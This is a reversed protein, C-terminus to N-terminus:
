CVACCLCVGACAWVCAGMRVDVCLAAGVRLVCWMVAVPLCIMVLHMTLQRQLLDGVRRPNRAGHAQSALPTLGSSFGEVLSIGSINGFMLGMGAGALDDPTRLFMLMFFGPLFNLMLGVSNLWGLRVVVRLERGWRAMLPSGGDPSADFDDEDHRVCEVVVGSSDDDEIRQVVAYGTRAPQRAANDLPM